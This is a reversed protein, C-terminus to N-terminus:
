PLYPYGKAIARQLDADYGYIDDFFHVEGEAPVVATGYVILVPIPQDLNVRLTTEGNMAERIRDATWGPQSRLVWAALEEPHEVRICGHSFDSRPMSFLNQMPTGHLYVDHENPFVFKVLGLANSSGPRQRIRLRGSRLQQLIEKSVAGDAVVRGDFTVIEYAHKALYTTPDREIQPILEARTISCPVDWYPRFIVYKMEKTFVPTRHRYAKGVVINMVLVPEHKENLARLKYEPINVVIPPQSFEHTVWRWRELTLQLQQVRQGLPVNLEALTRGTLQGDEQLGHRHQFHKVASVLPEQYVDGSALRADAPLDNLLRLLKALTAVGPYTDGPRVPKKPTPMPGEDYEQAFRIYSQLARETRWYAALPPELEALVSVVDQSEMVRKQLFEALDCRKQGIDFGFNFHRPNVRGVHLASLYRMASVTLALDFKALETESVPVAQRLNELREAWRPVDYDEPQLGKSEASELCAILSLAQDTPRNARIWGLAHGNLEYFKRVDSCRDRFDPWRLLPLHGDNISTRLATAADSSLTQKEGSVTLSSSSYAAVRNDQDAVTACGALVLLLLSALRHPLRLM